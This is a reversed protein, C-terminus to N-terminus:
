EAAEPAPLNVRFEHQETYDPRACVLVKRWGEPVDDGPYTGEERIVRYARCSAPGELLLTGSSLPQTTHVLLTLFVESGSLFRAVPLHKENPAHVEDYDGTEDATLGLDPM